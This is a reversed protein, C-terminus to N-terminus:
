FILNMGMAFPLVEVICLYSFLYSFKIGGEKNITFYILLLRLIFFSSLIVVLHNELKSVAPIYLNYMGLLVLITLTIFVLNTQILKFFHADVVNRINFFGSILNLFLYKLFFLIFATVGVFLFNTLFIRISDGSRYFLNDSLMDVGFLDFIMVGFSVLVSTLLIVSIGPADMPRGILFLDDKINITLMERLSFFMRYLRNHFNSVFVTVMMFFMFAIALGSRYRLGGRPLINVTDGRKSIIEGGRNQERVPYGIYASFDSPQAKSLFSFVITQHGVRDILEDLSYIEWGEETKSKNLVNDIFIDTQQKPVKILLYARPFDSPNIDFSFVFPGEGEYDQYPLYAKKDHDYVLWDKNLDHVASYEPHFNAWTSFSIFFAIFFYRIM